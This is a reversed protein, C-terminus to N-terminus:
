LCLVKVLGCNNKTLGVLQLVLKYLLTLCTIRLKFLYTKNSPDGKYNEILSYYCQNKM